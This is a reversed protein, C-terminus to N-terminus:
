DMETIMPEEFFFVHANSPSEKQDSLLKLAEWESCEQVSQGSKPFDTDYQPFCITPGIREELKYDLWHISLSTNYLSM